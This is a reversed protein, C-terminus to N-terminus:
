WKIAFNEELFDSIQSYVRPYQWWYDHGPVVVYHPPTGFDDEPQSLNFWKRLNGWVMALFNGQTLSDPIIGNDTVVLTRDLMVRKYWFPPGTQISYVQPNDRLISVVRNSIVTGNSEAVIIVKLSPINSTIFEVRSALDEAKSTYGVIMQGVERLYDLLSKDTRLHYLWLSTYNLDALRSEIGTLISWWGSTTKISKSGWGGPNVIVVLDKDKAESYMALLQNVFNNYRERYDGFLETALRSADEVVSQPVASLEYTPSLLAGGKIVRTVGVKVASLSVLGIGLLMIVALAIMGLKFVRKVM